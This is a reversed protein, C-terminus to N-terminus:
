VGAGSALLGAALVLLAAGGRDDGAVLLAPLLLLYPVIPYYRFSEVGAYWGPFLSPIGRGARLSDLLAVAKYLHGAADDSTPYHPGAALRAFAVATAALLLAALAGVAVRPWRAGPAAPAAPPRAGTPADAHRPAAPIAPVTSTPDSSADGQRDQLLM